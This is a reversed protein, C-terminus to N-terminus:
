LLDCSTGPEVGVPPVKKVSTINNSADKPVSSLNLCLNARGLILYLQMPPDLPTSPIRARRETWNRENEHLKRRFFSALYYTKM